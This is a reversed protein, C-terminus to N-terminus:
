PKRSSWADLVMNLIREVTAVMKARLNALLGLLQIMVSVDTWNGGHGHSLDRGVVRACLVNACAVALLEDRASTGGVGIAAGRAAGLDSRAALSHATSLNGAVLVSLSATAKDVGIRLGCDCRGLGLNGLLSELSRGALLLHLPASISIAKLVICFSAYRSSLRLRISDM